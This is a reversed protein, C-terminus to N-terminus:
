HGFLEKTTLKEVKGLKNLADFDINKENGLISYHFKKGKVHHSFFRNLDSLSLKKIDDYIAIRTDATLGQKKLNLFNWFINENLIRSSEITKLASLKASNFQDEAQPMDSMLELLADIADSLKDAQTGIYGSVYNSKNPKNTRTYHAYASYALAKSERIDQFVISSLGSGFYQNFVHAEARISLDYKCDKSLMRLETQVMDYHTFYVKNEVMDLEPYEKHEPLKVMQNPVTHTSLIAKKADDKKEPGYYFVMHEYAFIEQVIAVLKQPNTNNLEQISLIDNYPNEKGYKAFANMASRHIADKNTKINERQKEIKSVLQEYAQENVEANTLLHELLALGQKANKSLGSISICSREATVSVNFDLGLKFYEKNLNENSYKNTGLYKLYSLALGLYPDSKSGMEVIYSIRFLENNTNQIYYFDFGPQINEHTLESDYDVFVPNLRTEPLQAIHQAFASTANRNLNISSINPKEVKHNSDDTGNCKNVLVYNNTFTSNAFTVIDEKSIAELRDFREVMSNLSQDKVFLDVLVNARYTNNETSQLQNKKLDNIIAELLWDDFNGAKVNEIEALLLHKVEELTQGKQPTGILSFIGYDQLGYYYSYASQVKQKQLLNLELLGAGGNILINDILTLKDSANTGDKDVRYAIAVTEKSPGYVTSTTPQSIPEEIPPTFTPLDKKKWFGFKEEIIKIANEPVDGTLIIAMNNPVYYTDFYAHIKEMSPNQLHEGKGITTQTGYPHKPFLLENMKFFLKREDNDQLRNFEEYVTELETHFLRLSLENFRVSEISAWKGLETSPITNIYVTQENSTYANTGTAGLSSLLKDYENPVAYQAANQSITDIETYLKKREIPDATARRKEYLDSLKKLEVKEKDWNLSGIQSNGKFLMHELYHALGTTDKPDYKSGAKVAVRTVIKPENPNRSIYIKLGNELTYLETKLPDKAASEFERIEKEM